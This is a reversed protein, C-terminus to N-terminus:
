TPSSEGFFVRILANLVGKLYVKSFQVFNLLRDGPHRHPRQQRPNSHSPHPNPDIRPTTPFHSPPKKPHSHPKQPSRNSFESHQVSFSYAPFVTRPPTALSDPNEIKSKRDPIQSRLSPTGPSQNVIASHQICARLCKPVFASPVFACLCSPSTPERRSPFHQIISASDQQYAPPPSQPIRIRLAVSATPPPTGQFRKM